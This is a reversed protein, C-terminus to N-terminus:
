SHAGGHSISGGKFRADRAAAAAAAEHPPPLVRAAATLYRDLEALRDGFPLRELRAIRETEGLRALAVTIRLFSLERERRLARKRQRAEESWAAAAAEFEDHQGRLATVLAGVEALEASADAAALATAARQRYGRFREEIRDALERQVGAVAVLEDGRAALLPQLRDLGVAFLKNITLKEVGPVQRLLAEVIIPERRDREGDLAFSTPLLEVLRAYRQQLAEREDGEVRSRGSAVAADLAAGVAALATALEPLEMQEAMAGLSRLAPRSSAVWACEIEGLQLELMVNKLQGLHVAALEEFLRRSAERAVREDEASPRAAVPPQATAGPAAAGGDLIAAFADSIDKSRRAVPPASASPPRAAAGSAPPRREPRVTASPPLTSPLPARAAPASRVPPPAASSPITDLRPLAAASAGLTSHRNAAPAATAVRPPPRTPEPTPEPPPPASAAIPAAPAPQTAFLETVAAPTIVGGPAQDPREGDPADGDPPEGGGGDAGDAGRQFLRSFIGM